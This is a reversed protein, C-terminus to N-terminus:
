GYTDRPGRGRVHRPGHRWSPSSPGVVRIRRVVGDGVAAALRSLLQRQLTRLQTAWATSEAQLTLEGDRLSVPTCHDAIDPGVLQPWRGLVTADTLRPSWGRDMSVRSLMKGFPQPDRDDPGAGSWRRRNGRTGGARRRRQDGSASREAARQASAERAARLAERAIDPGRPGDAGAGDAPRGRRAAPDANDGPNPVSHDDDSM